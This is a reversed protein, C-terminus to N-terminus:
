PLIKEHCYRKIGISKSFSNHTLLAKFNKLIVRNL